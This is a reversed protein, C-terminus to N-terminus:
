LIGSKIPTLFSLNKVGKEKDTKEDTLFYPHILAPLKHITQFDYNDSLNENFV